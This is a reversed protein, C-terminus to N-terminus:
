VGLDILWHDALMVVFLVLLYTISFKFTEM